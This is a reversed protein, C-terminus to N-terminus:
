AYPRGFGGCGRTPLRIRHAADCGGSRPQTSPQPKGGGNDLGTRPLLKMAMKLWCLVALFSAGDNALSAAGLGCAAGAGTRSVGATASKLGVWAAGGRVAVSAGALSDSIAASRVMSPLISPAPWTRMAPLNLPSTLTWPSRVMSFPALSLPPTLALFTITAPSSSPLMSDAERTSSSSDPASLPSRLAPESVTAAPERMRPWTSHPQPSLSAGFDLPLDSLASRSSAEHA